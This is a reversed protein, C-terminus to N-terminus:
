KHLEYKKLTDEIKAKIWEDADAYIRGLTEYLEDRMLDKVLAFTADFAEEAEEETLKGDEAKAKLDDAFTKNTVNVATIILEEAEATYNSLASRAEDNELAETQKKVKVSVLRVYNIILTSLASLLALFVPVLVAMIQEQSM